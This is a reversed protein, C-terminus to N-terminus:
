ALAEAEPACLTCVMVGANHTHDGGPAPSVIRHECSANHWTPGHCSYEGMQRYREVPPIVVLTKATDWNVEDLTYGNWHFVHAEPHNKSLWDLSSRNYGMSWQDTKDLHILHTGSERLIWLFRSPADVGRALAQYDTSLDCTYHAPWRIEGAAKFIASIAPTRGSHDFPRYGLGLCDRETKQCHGHCEETDARSVHSAAADGCVCHWDINLPFAYSM